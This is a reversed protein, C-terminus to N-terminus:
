NLSQPGVKSNSYQNSPFIILNKKKHINEQVDFEKM